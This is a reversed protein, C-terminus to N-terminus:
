QRLFSSCWEGSLVINFSIRTTRNETRRNRENASRQNFNLGEAEGGRRAYKEGRGGEQERIFGGRSIYLLPQNHYTEFSTDKIKFLFIPLFHLLTHRDNFYFIIKSRYRTWFYAIKTFRPILLFPCSIQDFISILGQSLSIGKPADRSSSNITLIRSLTYIYIYIKSSKHFPTLSEM